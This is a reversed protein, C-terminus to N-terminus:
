VVQKSHLMYRVLKRLYEDFDEKCINLVQLKIHYNYIVYELM